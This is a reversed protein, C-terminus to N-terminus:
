GRFLKSNKAYTVVDDNIKSTIVANDSLETSTVASANIKDTTVADDNIKDTTIASDDVMDTEITVETVESNANTSGLLKYAGSMNQIKAYTVASANLKDTTVANNNIKSTTVTDNVISLVGANTLSIDGSPVVPNFNTGDAVLISTDTNTGMTLDDGLITLDGSISVNGNSDITFDSNDALSTGRNIKFKNSDSDDIGLTYKTTSDQQLEITVDGTSDSKNVKYGSSTIVGSTTDDANNKLFIDDINIISDTATLNSGALLTALSSLTTLQHTSGDSDLTLLKDGNVPTVDSYENISLNITNGSKTLGTGATIQGAGLFFMSFTLSTTGVIINGDTTLVYGADSNTDGEEIFTFAGSTVESDNDFDNSRSWDGSSDYLYIGNQSGTNSRKCPIRDGNTLTINDITQTGSLSTINATSAVRCSKKVDLGSAVSDVYAKVSQQTPVHTASNSIM